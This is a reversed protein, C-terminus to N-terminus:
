SGAAGAQRSDVTVQAELLKGQYFAPFRDVGIGTVKGGMPKQGIRISNQRAVLDGPDAFQELGLQKLGEVHRGNLGAEGLAVEEEDTGATRPREGEVLEIGNEVAICDGQLRATKGTFMVRKTSFADDGADVFVGGE